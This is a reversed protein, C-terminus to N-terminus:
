AATGAHVLRLHRATEAAPRLAILGGVVLPPSGLV